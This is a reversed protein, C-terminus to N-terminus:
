IEDIFGLESHPVVLGIAAAWPFVLVCRLDLIEGAEEAAALIGATRACRSLGIRDQDAGAAIATGEGARGCVVEAATGGSAEDVESSRVIPVPREQVCIGVCETPSCAFVRKLEAAFVPWTRRLPVAA